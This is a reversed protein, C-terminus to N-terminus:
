RWSCGDVPLQECVYTLFAEYNDALDAGLLNSTRPLVLVLAVPSGLDALFESKHVRETLLKTFRHKSPLILPHREDYSTLNSLAIRGGVRIFGEPDVFPNLNRLKSSRKIELRTYAEAHELEEIHKESAGKSSPTRKTFKAGFTSETTETTKIATAKHKPQSTEEIKKAATTKKDRVSDIYTNFKTVVSKIRGRQYKLEKLSQQLESAM